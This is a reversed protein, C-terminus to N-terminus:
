QKAKEHQRIRSVLIKMRQVKYSDIYGHKEESGEFTRLLKGNRNRVRQMWHHEVSWDKTLPDQVPVHRKFLELYVPIGTRAVFHLAGHGGQEEYPNESNVEYNVYEPYGFVYRTNEGPIQKM